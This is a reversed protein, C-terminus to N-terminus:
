ATGDAARSGRAELWAAAAAWIHGLMDAEVMNTHTCPVYVETIRGQVYPEWLHGGSERERSDEAIFLLADGQFVGSRHTRRIHVNNRGVRIGRRLEEDSMGGLLAGNEERFKDAWNDLEAETDEGVENASQEPLRPRGASEGQDEPVPYTDMIVLAAVTEGAEELQVAIEHAAVGGFSFGLLHYPGAPQLARIQEVYSAAMETVSGFLPSTGDLGPSQLGYLPIDAPVFQALPMYCWSLGGGPHIFFFPSRSGETRIPLVINVSDRVSALSMQSILGLVTPAAFVARASLSVGRKRLRAILTIVLLSNGGLQFFNDDVNVTPEGLVDAFVECLLLELATTPTVRRATAPVRATQTREPAPLARRDLKGSPTLPLEDLVVVAAPVMYDPLRREAYERVAGGASVGGDADSAGDVDSAVVYAVLRRDGPVDERAVVAVQGVQPHSRLVAEIEGPEIRFGRVKVQEDARGVFVLQGDPLWRVLDGTRYMREGVGFPCAVFREGTLGARGVYGRALQVGAVYLEGVVGVPVPGLGGDLVFVRTNALPRGLPVVGGAVVGSSLRGAVVGVTTETPGYHNFVARDGAVRVLEDVWGASAAEGGLVLSGAPLVAGVGVVGGLAALHSPVVKVFDIQEEGVFGAVAEADVVVSPDVVCLRGGSVLSAFVVTNGLDTVLPQLLGYRAGVGGWGLRGSVSGVYNALGGHTVGVGKPVGSSGSTYMVYALGAGDVV